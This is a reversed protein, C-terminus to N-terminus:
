VNKVEKVLYKKNARARALSRLREKERFEPSSMRRHWREREFARRKELWEANDIADRYARVRAARGREKFSPVCKTCYRDKGRHYFLVGCIMCKHIKLESM